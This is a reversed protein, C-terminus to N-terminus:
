QLVESLKQQLAEGRLEEAIIKGQPDILVNFPIGDFHYATIAASNWQKLDSMQTWALHDDKIAKLWADKDEDLSVGLIAFNKNKFKNYAAVVNPNEARCPGCWSAWFDVLLYKGKFDSISVNKGNVDTMTLAPAPQNLLAAAGNNTQQQQQLAQAIQSKFIALGSHQPFRKSADQAMTNLEDPSVAGKAKDLAFCIAAPNKSTKIFNRLVDDLDSLQRTYQMQLQMAYMSDQVGTKNMSDLKYYSDSLVSDKQWFNKIFSYLEKTADSGSVDPYVVGKLDFDVNIKNADNVLIVAPSNKFSLMYLNQQTDAGNLKYSGDKDIKTSDVVKGDDASYSLKELYLSDSPANKIKGTVTFKGNETKCATFIVSAIIAISFLKMM